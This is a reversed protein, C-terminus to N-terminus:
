AAKKKHRLTVAPPKVPFPLVRASPQGSQGFSGPCSVADYGVSFIYQCARQVRAATTQGHTHQYTAIEFGIFYFRGRPTTVGAAYSKANQRDSSVVVQQGDQPGGGAATVTINFPQDAPATYSPVSRAAIQWIQEWPSPDSAWALSYGHEMDWTSGKVAPPPENGPSDNAFEQLVGDLAQGATSTYSGPGALNFKADTPGWFAWGNPYEIVQAGNGIVARTALITDILDQDTTDNAGAMPVISDFGLCWVVYPTLDGDPSNKLAAYWAPMQARVTAWPLEDGGQMLVVYLGSKVVEGVRAALTEPDTSWDNSCATANPYAV